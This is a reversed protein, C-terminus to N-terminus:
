DGCAFRNSQTNFIPILEQMFPKIEGTQRDTTPLVRAVLAHNHWVGIAGTMDPRWWDRAFQEFAAALDKAGIAIDTIRGDLHPLIFRFM